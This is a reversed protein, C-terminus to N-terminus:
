SSLELVGERRDTMITIYNRIINKFFLKLPSFVGCILQSARMQYKSHLTEHLAAHYIDESSWNDEDLSPPTYKVTSALTMLENLKLKNINM